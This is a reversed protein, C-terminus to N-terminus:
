DFYLLKKEKAVINHSRLVKGVMNNTVNQYYEIQSGDYKLLNEAIQFDTLKGNNILLSKIMVPQYIHSMRMNESIFKKLEEYTM